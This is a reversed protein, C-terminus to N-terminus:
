ILPKIQSTNSMSSACTVGGAVLTYFSSARHSDRLVGKSRWYKGWSRKMKPLVMTQLQCQYFSKPYRKLTSTQKWWTGKGTLIQPGLQYGLSSGRVSPVWRRDEYPWRVPATVKRQRRAEMLCMGLWRYMNGYVQVKFFCSQPRLRKERSSKKDGWSFLQRTKLFKLGMPSFIFFFVYIHIVSYIITYSQQVVSILM